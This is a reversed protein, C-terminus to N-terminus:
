YRPPLTQPTSQLTVIKLHDIVKRGGANAKAIDIAKQNEAKSTVSGSLEVSDDKTDVTISSDNLSSEQRLATQIRSQVDASGATGVDSQPLKASQSTQNTESSASPPTASSTSGATGQPSSVSIDDVITQGSAAARAIADAQQKENESAVVGSLRISNDNAVSVSINAAGSSMQKQLADQIQSQLATPGSPKTGTQIEPRDEDPRVPTSTQDPNKPNQRGQTDSSVPPTSSTTGQQLSQGWALSATLGLVWAFHHLYRKM